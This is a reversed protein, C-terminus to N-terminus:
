QYNTSIITNDNTENRLYLDLSIDDLFIPIKMGISDNAFLIILGRKTKAFNENEKELNYIDITKLMNIIQMNIDKEKQIELTDHCNMKFTEYDSDNKIIRVYLCTLHKESFGDIILEFIGESNALLYLYLDYLYKNTDDERPESKSIVDITPIHRTLETM